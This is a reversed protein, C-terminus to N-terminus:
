HNAQKCFVTGTFIMPRHLIDEVLYPHIDYQRNFASETYCTSKSIHPRVVGAALAVSTENVVLCWATHVGVDMCVGCCKGCVMRVCGLLRPQETGSVNVDPLEPPSFSGLVAAAFRYM